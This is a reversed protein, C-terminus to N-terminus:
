INPDAPEVSSPDNIIGGVETFMDRIAPGLIVLGAIAVVAVLALILGYETMGQGEEDKWLKNIIALM